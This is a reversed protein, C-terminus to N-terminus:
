CVAYGCMKKKKGQWEWLSVRLATLPELPFFRM